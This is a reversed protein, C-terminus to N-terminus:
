GERRPDDGTAPLAEPPILWRLTGGEPRLPRRVEFTALSCKRMVQGSGGLLVSLLESLDPDHGVVVPERAGADALVRDLCALGCGGALRDDEEPTLGLAEGVIEATQRARVLPSTIIRDPRVGTALLFAGLRAAQARGKRTLPRLEDPGDWREADGAHAHRVLHLTELDRGADARPTM